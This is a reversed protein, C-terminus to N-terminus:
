EAAYLDESEWSIVKRWGEELHDHLDDQLRELSIAKALTEARSYRQDSRDEYACIWFTWTLHKDSELFVQILRNLTDTWRFERSPWNRTNRRLTLGKDRGFQELISDLSYLPKTIREWGDRTGYFGNAM